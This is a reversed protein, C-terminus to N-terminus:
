EKSEEDQENGGVGFDLADIEVFLVLKSGGFMSIREKLARAEGVGPREVGSGPVGRGADEVGLVGSGTCGAASVDRGAEVTWSVGSGICGGRSVGRGANRVLSIGCGSWAGGAAPMGLGPDGKGPLDTGTCGAGAM